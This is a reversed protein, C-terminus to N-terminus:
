VDVQRSSRSGNARINSRRVTTVARLVISRFGRVSLHWAQKPADEDALLPEGSHRRSLEHSLRTVHLMEHYSILGDNDLDYLRFSVARVFRSTHAAFANPFSARDLKEDLRGRTTVSLLVIFEEFDIRGDRKTDFVSFIYGAFEKSDVFPFWQKFIDRFHAKDM